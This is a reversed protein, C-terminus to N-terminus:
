HTLCKPEHNAFGCLRLQLREQGKSLRPAQEFVELVIVGRKVLASDACREGCAQANIPDVQEETTRGSFGDQANFGGVGHLRACLLSSAVTREIRSSMM